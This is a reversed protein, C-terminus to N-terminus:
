KMENQPLYRPPPPSCGAEPKSKGLHSGKTTTRVSTHRPRTTANPRSDGTIHPPTERPTPDPLRQVTRWTTPDPLLTNTGCYPPMHSPNGPKPGTSDPRAMYIDGSGKQKRYLRTGGALERPLPNPQGRRIAQSRPCVTHAGGPDPHPDDHRPPRPNRCIEM